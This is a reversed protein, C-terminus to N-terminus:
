RLDSSIIEFDTPIVQFNSLISWLNYKWVSKSFFQLQFQISPSKNSFNQVVKKVIYLSRDSSVDSNYFGAYWSSISICSMSFFLFM